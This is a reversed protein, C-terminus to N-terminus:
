ERQSTGFVCLLKFYDIPIKQNTPRCKWNGGEMHGLIQSDAPALGCSVAASGEEPEPPAKGQLCLERWCETSYQPPQLTKKHGQFQSVFNLDNKTVSYRWFVCCCLQEKSPLIFPLIHGLECLKKM